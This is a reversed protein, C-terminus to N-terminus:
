EAISKPLPQDLQQKALDEDEEKDRPTSMGRFPKISEAWWKWDVRLKRTVTNFNPCYRQTVDKIKSNNDWAVVYCIPHTARQQLVVTKFLYV